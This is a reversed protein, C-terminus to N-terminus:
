GKFWTALSPPLTDILLAGDDDEQNPFMCYLIGELERCIALDKENMGKTPYAELAEYLIGLQDPTFLIAGMKIAIGVLHDTAAQSRDGMM